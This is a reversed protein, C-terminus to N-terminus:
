VRKPPRVTNVTFLWNGLHSTMEICSCCSMYKDLPFLGQVMSARVWAVAPMEPDLLLTKDAVVFLFIHM